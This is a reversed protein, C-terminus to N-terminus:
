AAVLRRVRVDRLWLGGWIFAAVYLPFLVHSFLPDGVRVHVFVAAGLYGTLLVAGVPATRPVVYLVLLLALLAGIPQAISVPMGLKESAEAVMPHQVLKITADFSLFLVALASLIRGTWRIAPTPEM